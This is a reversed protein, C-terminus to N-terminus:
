CHWLSQTCSSGLSGVWAVAGAAVGLWWGREVQKGEAAERAAAEEAAKAQAAALEAKLRAAAAAATAQEQEAAERAQFLM